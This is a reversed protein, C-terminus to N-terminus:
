KLNPNAQIEKQPIPLQYAEDTPELTTADSPNSLDQKDRTISKSLRKFDFYRHGEFALEKYREELITPLDIQTIPESEPSRKSILENIDAIAQGTQGNKLYAEARILYMESVRFVKYDSIRNENDNGSYKAIQEQNDEGFFNDLRIDDDDSYTNRLKAASLFNSKGTNFNFWLTNPRIDDENNRKLKFVVETENADSWIGLFQKPTALPYHNIVKTSYEIAKTTNQQYLAARAGLAYMAQKNIRTNNESDDALDQIAQDIDKWLAVYFETTNSRSPKKYIDSDIVYPITRGDASAYNGDGFLRHLEFHILARLGKLEAELEQFRERENDNQLPVKYANDLLTNIRYINKYYTQWALLLVDDDSGYTWRYLNVAYGNVGSNEPALKTEDAMISGILANHEIYLQHYTGTVGYEFNKISRYLYDSDVSDKSDIDLMKDCSSFLVAFLTFLLAPTLFQKIYKM